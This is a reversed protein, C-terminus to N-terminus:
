KIYNYYSVCTRSPLAGSNWSEFSLNVSTTCRPLFCGVGFGRWWHHYAGGPMKKKQWTQFFLFLTRAVWKKGLVWEQWRNKGLLDHVRRPLFYRSFSTPTHTPPAFDHKVPETSCEWAEPHTSFSSANWPLQCCCLFMGAAKLSLKGTGTKM